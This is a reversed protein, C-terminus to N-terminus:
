TRVEGSAPKAERAANRSAGSQGMPVMSGVSGAHMTQTSNTLHLNGHRKSFAHQKPQDSDRQWDNKEESDKHVM